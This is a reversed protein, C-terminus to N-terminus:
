IKLTSKPFEFDVRIVPVFGRKDNGLPLVLPDGHGKAEFSGRRIALLPHILNKGGNSSKTKDVKIVDEYKAVIHGLVDLM